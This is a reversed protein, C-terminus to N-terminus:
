VLFAHLLIRLPPVGAPPVRLGTDELPLSEPRALVLVPDPAPAPVLPVAGGAAQLDATCHALCRNPYKTWARAMIKGDECPPGAAEGIAQALSGRELQCASHVFSAHGFAVAFLVLSALWRKLRRNLPM